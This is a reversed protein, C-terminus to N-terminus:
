NRDPSMMLPISVCIGGGNKEDVGDTFFLPGQAGVSRHSDDCRRIRLMM